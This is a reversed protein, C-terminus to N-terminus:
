LGRGKLLTPDAIGGADGSLHPADKVRCQTPTPCYLMGDERRSVAGGGVGGRFPLPKVFMTM